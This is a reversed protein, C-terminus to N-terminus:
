AAEGFGAAHLQAPSVDLRRDAGRHTKLAGEFGSMNPMRLDSIIVNPLSRKSTKHTHRCEGGHGEAGSDGSRWNTVRFGYLRGVGSRCQLRWQQGSDVNGVGSGSMASESMRGGAGANGGKGGSTFSGAFEPEWHSAGSGNLLGAIGPDDSIGSPGSPCSGSSSSRGSGSTVGSM